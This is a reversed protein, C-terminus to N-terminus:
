ESDIERNLNVVYITSDGRKLEGLEDGYLRILNERNIGKPVIPSPTM